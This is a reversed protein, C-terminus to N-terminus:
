PTVRRLLSTLGGPFVLGMAAGGSQPRVPRESIEGDM